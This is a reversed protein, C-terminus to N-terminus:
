LQSLTRIRNTSTKRNSYEIFTENEGLWTETIALINPKRNFKEPFIPQEDQHFRITTHKFMIFTKVTIPNM